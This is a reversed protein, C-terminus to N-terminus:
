EVTWWESQQQFEQASSTGHYVEELIKAIKEDM